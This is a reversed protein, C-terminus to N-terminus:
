EEGLYVQRVLRNGRIDEPRGDAIIRGQDMVLVRDALRFVVSMDHEIIMLNVHERLKSLTNILSLRDEPGLGGAPEDLILMKPKLALAMGLEVLKQVGLPLVEAKRDLYNELNLMSAIESVYASEEALKVKMASLMLNERVTLAPFISTIQFTRVLGLRVIAEASLKTIEVGDFFVRGGDPRLRKTIVNVLTTKGAGNPGILAVLEGKNVSFSVNNVAVFDGFKKVVRDVKLLEM